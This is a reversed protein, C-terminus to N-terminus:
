RLEELSNRLRDLLSNVLSILRNSEEALIALLKRQKETTAGGVGELLLGTGEKISTLPTRLEHSMSAFFDAKMRDIERLKEAMTSLAEALAGIEPPSKVVVGSDFNGKAIEETKRKLLAIPTTISRTVLLSMLVIALLCTIAIAVSMERAQDAMAALDALKASTTHQQNMRLREFGNLMADILTEKGEKYKSQPYTKNTRVYRSEDEVLATYSLYDQHIRKLIPAALGDSLASASELRGEFDIKLRIFQLYWAEDRTVVFQQEARSQGLLFEALAKEHDLVRNDVKFIAATREGFQRLVVIAYVSAAAVIVFIALYGLILRAFLSLRM